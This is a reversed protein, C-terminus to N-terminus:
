CLLVLGGNCVSPRTPRQAGERAGRLVAIDNPLRRVYTRAMSISYQSAILPLGRHILHQGQILLTQAPRRRVLRGGQMLTKQSRVRQYCSPPVLQENAEPVRNGVAMKDGVERM